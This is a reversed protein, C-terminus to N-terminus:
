LTLLYFQLLGNLMLNTTQVIALIVFDKAFAEGVMLMARSDTIRATFVSRETILHVSMYAVCAALIIYYSLHLSFLFGIYVMLPILCYGLVITMMLGRRFGLMVLVTKAHGESDSIFDALDEWLSNVATTVGILTMLALVDVSFSNYFAAVFLVPIAGVSFNVIAKFPTQRLRFPPVSYFIGILLGVGIVLTALLNGSLFAGGLALGSFLVYIGLGWNGLKQTYEARSPDSHEDLDVDCINNIADVSSWGCFGILGFYVAQELSLTSQLLLASGMSIMFLMLGREASIFTALGKM